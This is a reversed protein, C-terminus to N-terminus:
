EFSVVSTSDIWDNFAYIQNIGANKLSDIGRSFIGHTVYLDVEPVVRHVAEALGVFTGGGDCIDDVILVKAFLSLEKEPVTFSTIKGTKFDRVKDCKVLPVGLAKALKGAKKMAGADPAIIADYTNLSPVLSQVLEHQEINVARDLLAIGVDSHCDEITVKDFGMSNILNTVVKISLCDYPEEVRDYRSCPLYPLYLYSKKGQLVSALQLLLMIGDSCKINAEVFNDSSILTPPIVLQVEGASFKKAASAIEQGNLRISSKM